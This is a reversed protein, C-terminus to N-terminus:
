PDKAQGDIVMQSAPTRDKRARYRGWLIGALLAAALILILEM